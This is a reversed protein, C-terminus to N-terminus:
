DVRVFFAPCCHGAKKQTCLREILGGNGLGILPTTQKSGVCSIDKIVRKRM